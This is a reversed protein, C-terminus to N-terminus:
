KLVIREEVVSSVEPIEFQLPVVLFDEVLL